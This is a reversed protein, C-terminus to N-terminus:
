STLLSRHYILNCWILYVDYNLNESDTIHWKYTHEESKSQQTAEKKLVFLCVFGCM